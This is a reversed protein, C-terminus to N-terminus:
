GALTPGTGSAGTRACGTLTPGTGRLPRPCRTLATGTGVGAVHRRTGAGTLHRTLDRTGRRAAAPRTAGAAARTTAPDRGPTTATETGTTTATCGCGAAATEATTGAAAVTAATAGRARETTGTAGRTTTALRLPLLTLFVIRHPGRLDAADPKGVTAPLDQPQCLTSRQAIERVLDVDIGRLQDLGQEVQTLHDRRRL